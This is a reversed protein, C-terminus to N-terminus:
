LLDVSHSNQTETTQYIVANSIVESAHFLLGAETISAQYRKLKKEM